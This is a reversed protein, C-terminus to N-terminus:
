FSFRLVYFLALTLIYLYLIIHMFYFIISHYVPSCYPYFSCVSYVATCFPQATYICLSFQKHVLLFLIYTASMFICDHGYINTVKCKNKLYCAAEELFNFCRLM